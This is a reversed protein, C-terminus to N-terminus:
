RKVEHTDKQNAKTKKKRRRSLKRNAEFNKQKRFCSVTISTKERDIREKQRKVECKWEDCSKAKKTM